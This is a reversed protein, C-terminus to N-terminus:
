DAVTKLTFPGIAAIEGQVHKTTKLLANADNMM